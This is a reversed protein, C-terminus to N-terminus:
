SDDESDDGSGEEFGDDVDDDDAGNAIEDEADELMHLLQQMDLLREDPNAILGAEFIDMFFSCPPDPSFELYYANAAIMREMSAADLMEFPVENHILEWLLLCVSYVDSKTTPFVFRKERDILEPPQLTRMSMCQRYVKEYVLFNSPMNTYDTHENASEKHAGEIESKVRPYDVDTALEFSSLKIAWSSEQILVSHSSINTHVYDCEHLYQVAKVLVRIIEIADSTSLTKNACHVFQHLTYDMSELLLMSHNNWRTYECKAMLFVINVHRVENLIELDREIAVDVFRATTANNSAARKLVIETKRFTGSLYHFPTSITNQLTKQELDIDDTKCSIIPLSRSKTYNAM